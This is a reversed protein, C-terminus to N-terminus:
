RGQKDASLGAIGYHKKPTENIIVRVNQEPAEVSEMIADTVKRILADKQEQSRGEMMYIQAIPM